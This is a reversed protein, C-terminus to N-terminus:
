CNFLNKKELLCHKILKTIYQCIFSLEAILNSHTTSRLHHKSSSNTYHLTFLESPALQTSLCSSNITIHRMLFKIRANKVWLPKLYSRDQSFSVLSCPFSIVTMLRLVEPSTDTAWMLGGTRTNTAAQRKGGFRKFYKLVAKFEGAPPCM